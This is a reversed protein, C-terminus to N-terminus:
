TPAPDGPLHRLGKPVLPPAHGGEQARDASEEGVAPHRLSWRLLLRRRSPPFSFSPSDWASTLYSGGRRRLWVGTGGAGRGVSRRQEHSGPVCLPALICTVGASRQIWM